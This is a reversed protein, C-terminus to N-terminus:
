FENMEQINIQSVSIPTTRRTTIIKYDLTLNTMAIYADSWIFLQERNGAGNRSTFRFSYYGSNDSRTFLEKYLYLHTPETRKKGGPCMTQAMINVCAYETDGYIKDMEDTWTFTLTWEFICDTNEDVGLPATALLFPNHTWGEVVDTLKRTYYIGTQIQEETVSYARKWLNDKQYYYTEDEKYETAKTYTYDNASGIRDNVAKFTENYKRFPNFKDRDVKTWKRKNNVIDNIMYDLCIFRNVIYRNPGQYTFGGAFSYTKFWSKNDFITTNPPTIEGAIGEKTNNMTAVFINDILNDDNDNVNDMVRSMNGICQFVVNQNVFDWKGDKIDKFRNWVDRKQILAAGTFSYYARTATSYFFAQTPTAGIFELGLKSVVDGVSLGAENIAAVYEDTARYLNKNINFDISKPIKYSNQTLRLDSTLSTIGQIVNLRYSSLTKVVSPMTSLQETFIPLSYRTLHKNEASTANEIGINKTDIEIQHYLDDRVNSEMAVVPLSTFNGFFHNPMLINSRKFHDNETFCYELTLDEMALGSSGSWHVLRYGIGDFGHYMESDYSVNLGTMNWALANPTIAVPRIYDTEIQKKLEIATYPCSICATDDTIIMNSWSGDIVKTDKVSVWLIGGQNATFGISWQDDIMYDQIPATPYVMTVDINENKFPVTPLFSTTGEIVATDPPVNDIMSSGQAYIYHSHIDDYLSQKFASNVNSTVNEISSTYLAVKGQTNAVISNSQPTFDIKVPVDKLVAQVTEKTFYTSECGFCPWMFTAHKSGYIHKAEIDIDHSSMSGPSTFQASPYNPCIAKIIEPMTNMFFENTAILKDTVFAASRLASAAINGWTVGSGMVYSGSGDVSEAIKEFLNSTAKLITVRLMFSLNSLVTLATFMSSQSGSLFRNSMSQAVCYGIFNHCVYGPGAYMMSQSSTSYFMDLTKVATVKSALVIDSAKQIGFDSRASDLANEIAFQSFIRGVDSATTRNVISDAQPKHTLSATNLGSIGAQLLCLWFNSIGESASSKTTCTQEFEQKDFSLMDRTLASANKSFATMQIDNEKKGTKAQEYADLTDVDVAITKDTTKYTYAYQGITQNLFGFKTWCINLFWISPSAIATMVNICKAISKNPFNFIESLTTPEPMFGTIRNLIFSPSSYLASYNSQIPLWKCVLPVTNGNNKVDANEIFQIHSCIKDIKKYLYWQQEQTGYIGTMTFNGEVSKNHYNTLENIFNIAGNFGYEANVHQSPFQGGTLSGNVGVYGYGTIKRVLQWGRRKFIFSWQKLASDVHIGIIFHYGVHTATVEAQSILAAASMSTYLSIKNAATSLAKGYSIEEIEFVQSFAKQMNNLPLYCTLTFHSVDLITFTWLVAGGNTVATAGYSNSVGHKIVTSNLISSRTFRKIEKWQDGNWDDLLADGTKEDYQKEKLIFFDQTLLLIHQDDLWWMNETEITSDWQQKILQYESNLEISAIVAENTNDTNDKSSVSAEINTATIDLFTKNDLIDQIAIQTSTCDAYDLTINCSDINTMCLYETGKNKYIGCLTFTAYDFDAGCVSITANGKEIYSTDKSCCVDATYISSTVAVKSSDYTLTDADNYCISYINKAYSSVYANQNNKIINPVPLLTCFAYHGTWCIHMYPETTQTYNEINATFITCADNTTYGATAINSASFNGRQTIDSSYNNKFITTIPCNEANYLQTELCKEAVNYQLAYDFVACGFDSSHLVQVCPKIFEGNLVATDRTWCNIDTQVNNQNDTFLINTCLICTDQVVDLNHYSDHNTTATVDVLKDVSCITVPLYIQPSLGCTDGLRTAQVTENSVSWPEAGSMCHMSYLMVCFCDCACATGICCSYGGKGGCTACTRRGNTGNSGNKAFVTAYELDVFPANGGNIGDNDNCAICIRLNCVTCGTLDCCFRYGTTGQSPYGNRGYGCYACQGCSGNIIYSWGKGGIGGAAGGAGGPVVFTMQRFGAEDNDDTCSVCASICISYGSSGGRDISCGNCGSSSQVIVCIGDNFANDDVPQVCIEENTTTFTGYYQPVLNSNVNEEWFAACQLALSTAWAPAADATSTIYIYGDSLYPILEIARTETHNDPCCCMLFNSIKVDNCKLHIGFCNNENQLNIKDYDPNTCCVWRYLAVCPMNVDAECADTINSGYGSKGNYYCATSGTFATQICCTFDDIAIAQICCGDADFHNILKSTSDNGKHCLTYENCSLSTSAGAGGYVSIPPIGPSVYKCNASDYRWATSGSKASSGDCGCCVFSAVDISINTSSSDACALNIVCVSGLGGKGGDNGEIVHCSCNYSLPVDSQTYTESYVNFDTTVDAKAVLIGSAGGGGGAGGPVCITCTDDGINYSVCFSTGSDGGKGSAGQYYEVCCTASNVCWYSDEGKNGDSGNSACVVLQGGLRLDICELCVATTCCTFDGVLELRCTQSSGIYCYLSEIDFMTEDPNDLFHRDVCSSNQLGKFKIYSSFWGAVPYLVSIPTIQVNARFQNSNWYNYLEDSYAQLSAAVNKNGSSNNTSVASICRLVCNLMTSSWNGNHLEKVCFAPHVVFQPISGPIPAFPYKKDFKGTSFGAPDSSMKITCGITQVQMNSSMTDLLVCVNVNAQQQTPAYVLPICFNVCQSYSASSTNQNVSGIYWCGGSSLEHDKSIADDHKYICNGYVTCYYPYKDCKYDNNIHTCPSITCYASLISQQPVITAVIGSQSADQGSWFIDDGFFRLLYITQASWVPVAGYLCEAYVNEDTAFVNCSKYLCTTALCAYSASVLPVQYSENNQFITATANKGIANSNTCLCCSLTIDTYYKETVATLNDAITIDIDGAVDIACLQGQANTVNCSATINVSESSVVATTCYPYNDLKVSMVNNDGYTITSDNFQMEHEENGIFFSLGYNLNFEDTFSADKDYVTYEYVYRRQDFSFVNQIDPNGDGDFDISEADVGIWEEQKCAVPEGLGDLADKMDIYFVYDLNFDHTKGSVQVITLNNDDDNIWKVKPETDSSYSLVRTLPYYVFDISKDATSIAYTTSVYSHRREVLMDPMFNNKDQLADTSNLDYDYGYIGCFWGNKEFRLSSPLYGGQLVQRNFIFATNNIERFMDTMNEDIVSDLPISVTNWMEEM